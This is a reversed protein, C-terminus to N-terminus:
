NTFKFNNLFDNVENDTLNAAYFHYMTGKHYAYFWRTDNSSWLIKEGDVTSVRGPLSSVLNKIYSTCSEVSNCGKVVTQDLRAKDKVEVSFEKGAAQNVLTLTYMSNAKECSSPAYGGSVVEMVKYTTPYKVIYNHKTIPCSILSTNATPPTFKLSKYFETFEPHNIAGNSLTYVKENKEIIVMKGVWDKNLDTTITVLLAQNGNITINERVEKRDPFQAGYRKISAEKDFDKKNVASLAWIYGGSKSAQTGFAVNLNSAYSPDNRNDVSYWIGETTYGENWNVSTPYKIEIGYKEDKYTKWDATPSAVLNNDTKIQPERLVQRGTRDNFVANLFWLGTAIVVVIVIGWILKKNM